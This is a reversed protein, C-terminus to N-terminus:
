VALKSGHVFWYDMGYKVRSIKKLVYYIISKAM